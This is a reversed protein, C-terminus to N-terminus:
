KQGHGKEEQLGARHWEDWGGQYIKINKYGRDYLLRSLTVSQRCDGGRCYLVMLKEKLFDPEGGPFGKKAEDLSINVADPIHGADFEEGSRSDIFVAQKRNFLDEAEARAIFAIGPYLEAPLFSEKFEGRAFRSVLPFNVAMGLFCGAAVILIIERFLKKGNM